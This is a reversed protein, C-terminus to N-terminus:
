SGSEPATFSSDPRIGISQGPGVCVRATGKFFIQPREDRHVRGYMGTGEEDRFSASSAYTSGCAWVERPQLPILPEAPVPRLLALDEALRPLDSGEKEARCILDYLTYDPIPRASTHNFIAATTGGNWKVQGLRM